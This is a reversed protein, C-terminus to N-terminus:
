LRKHGTFNQAHTDWPAGCYPNVLVYTVGAEVLRRALVLGQGVPSNGFRERVGLPEQSLDLARLMRPGTLLQRAQQYHADMRGWASDRDLGRNLRDFVSKLTLRDQLRGLDVYDPWLLGSPARLRHTATPPLDGVEFAECAAGLFAPSAYCVQGGLQTRKPLAVFRPVGGPTMVGLLRALVAGQAPHRLNVRQMSVGAETNEHGTLALHLGPSHDNRADCHVSRILNYLRAQHALLPLHECLRLGATTTKIAKFEGRIREPAAPKPDWSELHSMGGELLLVIVGRARRRVPAVAQTQGTTPLLFAGLAVSCRLFHRRTLSPRDSRLPDLIM